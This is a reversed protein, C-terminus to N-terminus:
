RRFPRQIIGLTDSLYETKRRFSTDSEALRWLKEQRLHGWRFYESFDTRWDIASLPTLFGDRPLTDQTDKWVLTNGDYVVEPAAGRLRKFDNEITEANQRTERDFDKEFFRLTRAPIKNNYAWNLVRINTHMTDRTDESRSTREAYFVIYDRSTIIAKGTQFFAEETDSNHRLYLTGEKEQELQTDTFVIKSIYERAASSSDLLQEIIAKDNENADVMAIGRTRTVEANAAVVVALGGITASVIKNPKM